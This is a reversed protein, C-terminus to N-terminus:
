CLIIHMWTNGDFCKKWAGEGRHVRPVKIRRNDQDSM